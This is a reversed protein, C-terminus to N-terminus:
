DAITTPIATYTGEILWADGMGPDVLEGTSTDYNLTDEKFIQTITIPNSGPALQIFTEDADAKTMFGSLEGNVVSATAGGEALALQGSIKLDNIPLVTKSPMDEYEFTAVFGFFSLEAAFEGSAPDLTGATGLSDSDPDFEFTDMTQTKLGSGGEVVLTNAEADIDTLRLLVIVPYNLNLDFNAALLMNLQNAPATTFNLTDFRLEYQAAYEAGTNDVDVNQNGADPTGNNATTQNNPTENNKPDNSCAASLSAALLLALWPTRNM